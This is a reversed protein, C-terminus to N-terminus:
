DKPIFDSIPCSVVDSFAPFRLIKWPGLDWTGIVCMVYTSYCNFINFISFRSKTMQCM